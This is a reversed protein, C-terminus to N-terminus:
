LPFSLCAPFLFSVSKENRMLVDMLMNKREAEFVSNGNVTYQSSQIASHQTINTHFSYQPACVSDDGSRKLVTNRESENLNGREENKDLLISIEEVERKRKGAGPLQARLELCYQLSMRKATSPSYHCKSKDIHYFGNHYCRCYVYEANVLPRVGVM